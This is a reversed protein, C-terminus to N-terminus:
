STCNEVSCAAETYNLFGIVSRLVQCTQGGRRRKSVQNKQGEQRNNQYKTYIIQYIQEEGANPQAAHIRSTNPSHFMILGAYAVLSNRDTPCISIMHQFSSFFDKVAVAFSTFTVVVLRREPPPPKSVFYLMYIGLARCLM